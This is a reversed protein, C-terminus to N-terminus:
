GTPTPVRRQRRWHNGLCHAVVGRLWGRFSGQAPDYRFEPLRRALVTLVEQILDEAEQAPAHRLLWHRLLPTYLSVFRSWSAADKLNRVRELLSASTDQM